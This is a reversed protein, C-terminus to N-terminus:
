SILELNRDNVCHMLDMVLALMLIKWEAVFPMEISLISCLALYGRFSHRELYLTAYSYIM